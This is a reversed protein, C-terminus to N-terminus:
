VRYSFQIVNQHFMVTKDIYFPVHAIFIIKNIYLLFHKDSITVSRRQLIQVYNSQVYVFDLVATTELKISFQIVNQRFM